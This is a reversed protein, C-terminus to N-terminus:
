RCRICRPPGASVDSSVTPVDRKYVSYCKNVPLTDFLDLQEIDHDLISASETHAARDQEPHRCSAM